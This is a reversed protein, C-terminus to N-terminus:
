CFKHTENLILSSNTSACFINWSDKCRRRFLLLRGNPRNLVPHVYGGILTEPNPGSEIRAM